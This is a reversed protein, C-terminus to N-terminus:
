DIQGCGSILGEEQWDVQSGGSILEKIYKALTQDRAKVLAELYKQNQSRRKLYGWATVNCICYAIVIIEIIFHFM